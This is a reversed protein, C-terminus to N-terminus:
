AAKMGWWSKIVSVARHFTSKTTSSANVKTFLETYRPDAKVEPPAIISVGHKRKLRAVAAITKRSHNAAPLWVAKRETQPRASILNLMRAYLRKSDGRSAASTGGCRSAHLDSKISQYSVFDDPRNGDLVWVNKVKAFHKTHLRGPDKITLAGPNKVQLDYLRRAMQAEHAVAQKPLVVKVTARRGSNKARNFVNEIKQATPLLEATDTPLAVWTQLQLVLKKGQAKAAEWNQLASSAAAVGVKINSGHKGAHNLAQIFDKFQTRDTFKNADVELRMNAAGRDAVNQRVRSVVTVAHDALHTSLTSKQKHPTFHLRLQTWGPGSKVFKLERARVEVALKGLFPSDFSSRAILKGINKILERDTPDKLDFPLNVSLMPKQGLDRLALRRRVDEVAYRGLKKARDHGSDVPTEQAVDTLSDGTGAGITQNELVSSSDSSAVAVTEKQTQTCLTAM